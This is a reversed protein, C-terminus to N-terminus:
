RSANGSRLGSTPDDGEPTRRRRFLRDVIVMAPLVTVVGLGIGLHFAAGALTSFAFM